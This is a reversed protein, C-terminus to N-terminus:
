RRAGTRRHLGGGTGLHLSCMRPVTRTMEASARAMEQGRARGRSCARPPAHRWGADGDGAAVHRDSGADAHLRLFRASGKHVLPGARYRVLMSAPCYRQNPRDLGVDRAGVGGQLTRTLSSTGRAGFRQLHGQGAEDAGADLVVVEEDVAGGCRQHERLQEEGLLAGQHCRKEDNAVKPTPNKARGTPPITNPWKPSRIPRLFISTMESTPMPTAVNQMPRSGPYAVM